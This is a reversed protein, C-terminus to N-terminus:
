IRDILEKVPQVEKGMIHELIARAHERGNEIFVKETYIGALVTGCVYLGRVNTEFTQKNFTPIQTEPDLEIGCRRLLSADPTYGSLVLVFDAPLVSTEGTEVNELHVQHPEIRTVRSNFQTKIKGEKVRNKVDPILWYKVTPKFDERRHVVTVDVDHRYLELAAEVASNAAGVIVVKTFSYRFPEDYYHSVHPLDEGPIGLQRPKDFYGTAMIVRHASFTDGTTTFVTFLEGEKEVRDVETFVKTNLKYYAAVKRYYQLAENRTAKVGSIPFPIGGIEINEATSFFRMLKPYRRISETISGKELILHSLGNKAAEIGAALGCPGGGIIIVDYLQM